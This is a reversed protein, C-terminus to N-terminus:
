RDGTIKKERELRKESNAAMIQLANFQMQESLAQKKREHETLPRKALKFLLEIAKIRDSTKAEYDLAISKLIELCLASNFDLDEKIQTVDPVDVAKPIELNIEIGDPNDFLGESAALLNDLKTKDDPLKDSKENPKQAQIDDSIPKKANSNNASNRPKRAPKKPPNNNTSDSNDEPPPTANTTKKRPM